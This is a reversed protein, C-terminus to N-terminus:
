ARLSVVKQAPVREGVISLLHAAWATLAHQKQPAYEARNYIGSIGHKHGSVHNVVAEAVHPAIDLEGVMKTVATRRLDHTVWEFIAGAARLRENLITKCVSWGTFPRGTRRGFVFDDNRPRTDLIARAAPALFVTHERANKTRSAPLVIHEGQIESFHLEGIEAARCATLALLRIIASYDSADATQKWIAKLECNSLVRSRSQEKRRETSAVPNPADTLGRAIAWNFFAQLSARVRNSEIPGSKAAITALRTAIVRRDVKALQLGHLARCHKMLHREFGRYSGAKVDTRKEALYDQLAAGVTEGARLRAETKEGAPDRGLHVEAHLKAASQRAQAATLVAASGLKIRRAKAGIKYQFIFTRTGGARLRYGFGPIATDFTILDSQGKPLVITAINRDTLKM